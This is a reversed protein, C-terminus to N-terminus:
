VGRTRNFSIKTAQQMRNAIQIAEKLKWKDEKSLTSLALKNTVPNNDALQNLNQKIRYFQLYHLATKANEVDRPHMANSEKLRHLRQITNVEKIGYKIAYIRVTNIIQMLGVKKVDITKNKQNLNMVGLPTVPIKWRLSDKVLLYQLLNSGRVKETIFNRVDEAISFDGYIPRFDYFMTFRQIEKADLEKKWYQIESKWQDISKRWPEEKAMIGGTCQPFGVEELHCNVKMTFTHFYKEIEEANKLHSYNDIIIGNDQDTHFTQDERAQSGMTIFCYNVPPKGYGENKMESETVKILQRYMLDNHKSIIDTIDYAYSGNELLEHIFSLFMSNKNSSYEKLATISNTNMIKFSLELYSSNNLNLFSHPTLMGVVNKNNVVPLIQTNKYKFYSLAEITFIDDRVTFYGQSKYWNEVTEDPKYKTIFDLVENNTLIGDITKQDNSVILGNVGETRLKIAADTMLETPSIFKPSTMLSKVRTSLLNINEDDGQSTNSKIENYLTKMREGVSEWIVKSFTPNSLMVAFFSDKNLKFVKSDEIAQVSFNLEGSTFMVMIGVIDGPYYYRLSLQKGNTQHLINKALGSVLFYIDLDEISEDEHFLFESKNFSELKSQSVVSTFEDNTLLNFPYYDKLIIDLNPQQM